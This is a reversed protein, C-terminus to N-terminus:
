KEISDFVKRWRRIMEQNHATGFDKVKKRMAAYDTTQTKHKLDEWSDFYIIIDKHEPAYWECLELCSVHLHYFCFFSYLESDKYWKLVLERSPVFHPLGYQINEFFALNSWQYPLHMIGKFDKLDAPGNYSGTYVNISLEKCRNYLQEWGPRPLVFFTEEKKVEQPIYSIANDRMTQECSGCPKIILRGTDINKNKAYLREYATYNVFFVNKQQAAKKFLAYFEKDPFPEDQPGGDKYDFRNCIWIILPKQWGHQLFIRALPATDSTVIVDFTDFYDKNINWVAAARKHGIDFIDNGMREKGDYKSRPGSSIHWSTLDLHLRRGVEEFDKICGTHFSM